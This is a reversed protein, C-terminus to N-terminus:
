HCNARGDRNRWVTRGHHSHHVRVQLPRARLLNGQSRFILRGGRLALDTLCPLNRNARALLPPPLRFRNRQQGAAQTGLCGVDAEGDGHHM